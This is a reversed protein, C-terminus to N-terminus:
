PQALNFLVQELNHLQFTTRQANLSLGAHNQSRVTGDKDGNHSMFGSSDEVRKRM